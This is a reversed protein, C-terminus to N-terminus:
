SSVDPGRPLYPVISICIPFTSPITLPATCVVASVM